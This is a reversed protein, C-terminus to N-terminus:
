RQRHSEDSRITITGYKRSLAAAAYIVFFPELPARYRMVGNVMGTCVTLAFCALLIPGHRRDLWVRSRRMEWAALLFIPVWTMAMVLAHLWIHASRNAGTRPFPRWVYWVRWLFSRLYGAPDDLIHRLGMKFLLRDFDPEGLRTALEHTGPLTKLYDVQWVGGNAFALPNNSEYFCIGGETSTLLLRHHVSWNRYGWASLILIVPLCFRWLAAARTGRKMTAALWLCLLLFYPLFVPRITVLAGTALGGLLAHDEALLRTLLLLATMAFTEPGLTGCWYILNPFLAALLAATLATHAGYFRFALLAVLLVNMTSIAAMALKAALVSPGTLTWLGYFFLPITPMRFSARPPGPGFDLTYGKGALMNLAIGAGQDAQERDFGPGSPSYVAWLIRLLLALALVTALMPTRERSWLKLDKESEDLM